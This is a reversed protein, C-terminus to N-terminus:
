PSKTLEVEIYANLLALRLDGAARGSRPRVLDYAARAREPRDVALLGRVAGDLLDDAPIWLRGQRAEDLLPGAAPAAAPLDNRALAEGFAVVARV